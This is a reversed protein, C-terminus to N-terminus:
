GDEEIVAEEEVEESSYGDDEDKANARHEQIDEDEEEGNEVAAETNTEKKERFSIIKGSLPVVVRYQIFEGSIDSDSTIEIVDGVEAGIWICQVDDPTIKALHILNVYLDDNLLRDVESESLIRHPYCLPGKPAILAFNEHLYTKIRLQKFTTIIKNAYTKLPDKSVLIVDSPEKIKALLRRLDQTNVYKSDKSLLYILVPRNSKENFYDMRVYKDIQIKKRFNNEDLLQTVPTYKRWDKAFIHLNIYQQYQSEM